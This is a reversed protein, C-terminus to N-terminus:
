QMKILKCVGSDDKIKLFYIGDSLEDLSIEVGAKVADFKRVLAGSVNYISVSKGEVMESFYIVKTTPNPYFYPHANQKPEALTQTQVPVEMAGISPPNRYSRSRYDSFVIAQKLGAKFAPSSTGIGYNIGGDQVFLPNRQVLGMSEAVPLQPGRWGANADHYWLNNSFKFSGPLTNPGINVDTSLSNNVVVINNSFVNNACSQFFSTDASEQLIRMIWREPHYITNNVVQVNRCGVYAIPTVAGEFINGSVLIDKAEYNAGPPRFFALGTSGGLNLSRQGGNIFYNKEIHLNSSGGKAQISNSGQQVFRCQRISGYHCGVMDIGSGGTSGNEFQCNIIEFSDLGSLKLMDNNGTAAMDRFVINEMVVKKAASEFTGGDDLNMGNGSQGRVTFNSLHVYQLDTFHMSESGGSFVVRAADTGRMFIWKSPTGKLNEIFFPGSYNAPYILITDGPVAVRAALGPNTYAKGPGVELVRQGFAVPILLSNMFIFLGLFIFTKM